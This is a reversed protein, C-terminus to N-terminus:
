SVGVSTVMERFRHQRHAKHLRQMEENVVIRFRQRKKRFSRSGISINKAPMAVDHNNIVQDCCSCVSLTASRFNIITQLDDDEKRNMAQGLLSYLRTIM